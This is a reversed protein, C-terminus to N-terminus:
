KAELLLEWANLALITSSKARYSFDPKNYVDIAAVMAPVARDLLEKSRARM